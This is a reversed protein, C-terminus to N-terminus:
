ERDLAFTGLAPECGTLQWKTQAAIGVHQRHEIIVLRTGLFFKLSEEVVELLLVAEPLKSRFPTKCIHRDGSGLRGQVDGSRM